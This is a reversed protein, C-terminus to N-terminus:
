SDRRDASPVARLVRSPTVVLHVRQDHAAAPLEDVVQEDYAFGVRLCDPRLMPLLRDYYGGGYGLRYGSADFAVGPVIVVDISELSLRPAEPRPQRIGLPGPELEDGRTVLHVGLAGPGEIRPMGIAKGAGHLAEIAAAPDLEEATAAYAMVLRAAHVESLSLLNEAATEAHALCAHADLSCRAERILCRLARKADRTRDSGSM